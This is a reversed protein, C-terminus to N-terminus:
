LMERSWQALFCHSPGPYHIVQQAVTGVPLIDGFSMCKSLLAVHAKYAKWLFSSTMEAHIQIRQLALMLFSFKLHQVLISFTGM